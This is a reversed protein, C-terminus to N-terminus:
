LFASAIKPIENVIANSSTYFVFLSGRLMWNNVRTICVPCHTGYKTVFLIPIGADRRLRHIWCEVDDVAAVNRSLVLLTNVKILM